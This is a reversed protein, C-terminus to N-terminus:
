SSRVNVFDQSESATPRVYTMYYPNVPPLIAVQDPTVHHLRRISLYLAAIDLTWTIHPM